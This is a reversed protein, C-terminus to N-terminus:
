ANHPRGFLTVDPLRQEELEMSASIVDLLRQRDSGFANGKSCIHT